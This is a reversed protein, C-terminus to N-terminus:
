FLSSSFLDEETSLCWCSPKKETLNDLAFVASADLRKTTIQKPQEKTKKKKGNFHATRWLM